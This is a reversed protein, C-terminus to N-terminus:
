GVQTPPPNCIYFIESIRASTCEELDSCFGGRPAGRPQFFIYERSRPPQPNQNQYKARPRPSNQVSPQIEPFIQLLAFAKLILTQGCLFVWGGVFYSAYLFPPLEFYPSSNKFNQHFTLLCKPLLIINKLVVFAHVKLYLFNTKGLSSGRIKSSGGGNKLQEGWEQPGRFKKFIQGGDSM